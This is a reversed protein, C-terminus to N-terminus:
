WKNSMSSVMKELQKGKAYGPYFTSKGDNLRYIITPTGQFGLTKFFTTNAEVRAFATSVAASNADKKLPTVGGSENKEKFKMEDKHFIAVKKAETAQVLIRASKGESTKRLFGAAIWRVQLKGSEIMPYVEKYLLHCYICNPDIVIYAKHPAKNSGQAFWHTSPLLKYAKKAIRANIYTETYAESLNVGKSSVINGLVLYENNATAYALTPQEGKPTQLVVGTLGTPTKFTQGVVMQGQTTKKVLQATTQAHASIAALSIAAAGIITITKLMHAGQLHDIIKM